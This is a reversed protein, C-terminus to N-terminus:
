LLAPWRTRHPNVEEPPLRGTALEMHVGVHDPGVAALGAACFRLPHTTDARDKHCAPQPSDIM